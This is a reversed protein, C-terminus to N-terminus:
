NFRTKNDIFIWGLIKEDFFAFYKMLNKFENISFQEDQVLFIVKSCKGFSKIDLSSIFVIDKKDFKNIYKEAILSDKKFYIGLKSQNDDLSINELVKSINLTNLIKEENFFNFMFPYNIIRKFSEFDYIKGSSIEKINIILFGIIFSILLGISSLYLRKPYIRKDDLIPESILEWSDSKKSKELKLGSLEDELSAITNEDRTAERKLDRYKILIENPRKLSKKIGKIKVQLDKIYQTNPKLVTLKQALETEYKELLAFQSQFRQSAGSDNQLANANLDVISKLELDEVSSFKNLNNTNGSLPFFGDFSGLDNDLSFKNLKTLSNYSIEKQISIQSELFKIGKNIQNQRDRKSYAQYESSIMKLIELIKEENTGKYGVTLIKSGQNKELELFSNTWAKFSIPKKNKDNINKIIEQNYVSQLVSPSKLIMVQTILDDNLSGGLNFRSLNLAFDKEEEKKNELHIEFSGRYIPPNIYTSIITIITGVASILLISKLNRKLRNFYIKLDIENDELKLNELQNYNSM